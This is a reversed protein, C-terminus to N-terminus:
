QPRGCAMWLDLALLPLGTTAGASTDQAARASLKAEPKFLRIDSKPDGTAASLDDTKRFLLFTGPRHHLQNSDRAFKPHECGSTEGFAQEPRFNESFERNRRQLGTRMLSRVGGLKELV